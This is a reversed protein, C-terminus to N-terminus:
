QLAIIRQQLVIIRQQLVVIRQQQLVLPCHATGRFGSKSWM